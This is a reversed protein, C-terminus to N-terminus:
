DAEGAFENKRTVIETDATGRLTAQHCQAAAYIWVGTWCRCGSTGCTYEYWPLSIATTYAGGVYKAKPVCLLHTDSQLHTHDKLARINQSSQVPRNDREPEADVLVAQLPTHM